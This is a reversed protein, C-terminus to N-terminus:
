RRAEEAATRPGARGPAGPVPPPLRDATAVADPRRLYLPEVPALAMAGRGALADATVLGLAGAGPDLLDERATGPVGPLHEDYLRVGRGVWAPAQGVVDAAAGVGPGAVRRLGAPGPEYAAWYVERRRADTAVGFRVPLALGGAGLADASARALADLSCVGHVPLDLALGLAQAAALGVRLGTYPGPGVGVAVADLDGRSAGADALVATVLPQLLEAHRRPDGSTRAAVVRGGDLLAASAVASTDVALLVRGAYTAGGDM